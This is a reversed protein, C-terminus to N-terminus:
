ARRSIKTSPTLAGARLPPDSHECELGSHLLTPAGFARIPGSVSIIAADALYPLLPALKMDNSNM